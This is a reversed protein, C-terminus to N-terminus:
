RNMCKKLEKKGNELHLIVKDISELDKFYLTFESEDDDLFSLCLVPMKPRVDAIFTKIPEPYHINIQM